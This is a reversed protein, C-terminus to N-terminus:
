GWVCLQAVNRIGDNYIGGTVIDIKGDADVDGVCVSAIVTDSTWYWTKIDKSAFTAGNWVCM